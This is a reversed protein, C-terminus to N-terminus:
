LRGREVIKVRREMARYKRKDKGSIKREKAVSQELLYPCLLHPQMGKELWLSWGKGECLVLIKDGRKMLVFKRGRCKKCVWLIPM